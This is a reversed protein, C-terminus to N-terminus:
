ARPILLSFPRSSEALGLGPVLGLAETRAGGSLLGTTKVEHLRLRRMELTPIMPIVIGLEEPQLLIQHSSVSLSLM